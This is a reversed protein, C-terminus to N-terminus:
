NKNCLVDHYYNIMARKPRTKLDRLVTQNEFTTNGTLPVSGVRFIGGDPLEIYIPITMRFRADVGSQELKFSLAISGDPANSFTFSFKEAPLSTGYVYEDFFWDMKGDGTLNMSPSMHNEVALKFDETTAPRNSHTQVFEHM